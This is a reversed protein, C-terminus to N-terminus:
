RVNLNPGDIASRGSQALGDGVPKSGLVQCSVAVHDQGQDTIYIEKRM